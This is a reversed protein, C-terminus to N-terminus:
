TYLQRNESQSKAPHGSVTGKSQSPGDFQSSPLSRLLNIGAASLREMASDSLLGSVVGLLGLVFVNLDGASNVNTGVSPSISLQGAKVVLFIALAAAM